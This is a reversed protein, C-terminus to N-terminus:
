VAISSGGDFQGNDTGPGGFRLVANDPTAMPSSTPGPTGRSYLSSGAGTKPSKISVITISAIIVIAAIVGWVVPLFAQTTTSPVEIELPDAVVSQRNKEILFKTSCYGCTAFTAGPTYETIQAGCQPCILPEM